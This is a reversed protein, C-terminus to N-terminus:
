GGPHRACRLELLDSLAALRLHEGPLVSLDQAEEAGAEVGGREVGLYPRELPQLHVATRADDEFPYLPGIEECLQPPRRPRDDSCGLHGPGNMRSHVAAAHIVAAKRLELAPELSM